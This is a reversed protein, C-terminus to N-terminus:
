YYLVDWAVEIPGRDRIPTPRRLDATGVERYELRYDFAAGTATSHLHFTLRDLVARDRDVYATVRSDAAMPEAMGGYAAPELAARVAAPGTARLVLTTRNREVVRWDADPNPVNEARAPPDPRITGWAPLPMVTWNGSRRAVSGEWRGGSQVLAYTGEGFFGGAERGNSGVFYTYLRRDEYDVGALVSPRYSADADSANRVLLATRHSRIATNRGAVDIVRRPEDADPLSGSPEPRPRVDTVRVAAAGVVLGVLLLVVLARRTWPWSRIRFAPADAERSAASAVLSGYYTAHVAAVTTVGVTGVGLVVAAEGATPPAGVLGVALGSVGQVVAVLAAFGLLSRPHERAARASARCAAVPGAGEFASGADAFRLVFTATVGGIAACAATLYVAEMAFPEGPDLVAYRVYRIGTSAVLWGVAAAVSALAVGTGVAVDTALVRWYRERVARAARVLSGRVPEDPDPHLVLEYVGVSLPRVAVTAVLAVAPALYPGVAPLVVRLTAAVTAWVTTGLFAATGGVLLVEPHERGGQWATRISARLTM